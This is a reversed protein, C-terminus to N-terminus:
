GHLHQARIRILMASIIATGSVAPLRIVEGAGAGSLRAPGVQGGATALTSHIAACGDKLGDM